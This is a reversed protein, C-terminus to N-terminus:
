LVLAGAGISVNLGYGAGVTLCAGNSGFYLGALFGVGVVARVRVGYNIGSRGGTPLLCFIINYNLSYGVGPGFDLTSFSSGIDDREYGFLILNGAISSGARVLGFNLSKEDALRKIHNVVDLRRDPNKVASKVLKKFEKDRRIEKKISKLDRIGRKMYQPKETMLQRYDKRAVRKMEKKSFKAEASAIGAIMVYVLILYKM